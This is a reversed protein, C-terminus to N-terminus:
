PTIHHSPNRSYLASFDKLRISKLSIPVLYCTDSQPHQVLSSLGWQWWSGVIKIIFWAQLHAALGFSHLEQSLSLKTTSFKLSCHPLLTTHTPRDEVLFLLYAQWNAGKVLHGPEAWGGLARLLLLNREQGFARLYPLTLGSKSFGAVKLAPNPCSEVRGPM